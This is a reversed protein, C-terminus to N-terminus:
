AVGNDTASAILADADLVNTALPKEILVGKGASIAELALTAHTNPPTAIVLADVHELASELDSFCSGAISPHTDTLAALCEPRADIAVVREVGVTGHLVRVHKSGWYGCG